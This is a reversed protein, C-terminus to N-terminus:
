AALGRLVPVTHAQDAVEVQELHGVDQETRGALRHCQFDLVPLSDEVVQEELRDRQRADDVLAAGHLREHLGLGGDVRRCTRLDGPERNEGGVGATDQHELTGEGVVVFGGSCPLEGAPVEVVAFGRGGAGGAFPDLFGAQRERRALEGVGVVGRVADVPQVGVDDRHLRRDREVGVLVVADREVGVVRLAGHGLHGGPPVQPV